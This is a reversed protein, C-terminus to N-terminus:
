THLFRHSKALASTDPFCVFRGDTIGGRSMKPVEGCPRKVVIVMISSNTSYGVMERDASSTREQVLGMLPTRHAGAGKGVNQVATSARM